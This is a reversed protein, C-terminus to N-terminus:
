QEVWVKRGGKGQLALSIEKISPESKLQFFTNGQLQGPFHADASQIWPIKKLGPIGKALEEAKEWRRVELAAFNLGEPIFGLNSILSNRPRDIHAPIVLGGLHAVTQVLAELSITTAIILAQDIKKIKKGDEDVVWQTGWLGENNKVGSFHRYVVDQLSCIEQYDDFLCVVHVEERTEVEMGALVYLGAKRGAKQFAPVNEATNHDTLALLKIGKALAERIVLDPGMEPQGCPSLLSHIHLEGPYVKM